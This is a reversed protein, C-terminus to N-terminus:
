ILYFIEQHMMFVMPEAGTTEEILNGEKVGEKLVYHLSVVKNNAIM